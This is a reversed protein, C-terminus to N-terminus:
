HIQKKKPRSISIEDIKKDQNFRFQIGETYYFWERFYDGSHLVFPDGRQDPEGYIRLVKSRSEGLRVGRDTRVKTDQPNKAGEQYFFIIKLKGGRKGFDLNIGKGQYIYFYSDKFKRIIRDPKGLGIKVEQETQGLHVGASGFGPQVVVEEKM